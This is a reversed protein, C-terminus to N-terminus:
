GSLFTIGKYTSTFTIVFIAKKKDFFLAPLTEWWSM